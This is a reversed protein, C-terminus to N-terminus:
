YKTKKKLIIKTPMVVVFNQVLLDVEKQRKSRRTKRLYKKTNKRTPM